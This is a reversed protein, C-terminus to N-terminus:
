KKLKNKLRELNFKEERILRELMQLEEWSRLGNQRRLEWKNILNEKETIEEIVKQDSDEHAPNEFNNEM